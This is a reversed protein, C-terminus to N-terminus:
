PGDPLLDLPLRVVGWTARLPQDAADWRGSTADRDVSLRGAPGLDRDASWAGGGFRELGRRCGGSVLRLGPPDRAEAPVAAAEPGLRNSAGCAVAEAVHPVQSTMSEDRASVIAHARRGCSTEAGARARLRTLEVFRPPKRREISPVPRHTRQDTQVAANRADA